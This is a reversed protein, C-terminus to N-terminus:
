AESGGVTEWFARRLERRADELGRFSLKLEGEAHRVLDVDIPRPIKPRDVLLSDIEEDFAKHRWGVAFERGCRRVEDMDLGEQDGEGSGSEATRTTGDPVPLLAFFPSLDSM